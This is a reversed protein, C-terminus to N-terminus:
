QMDSLAEEGSDTSIQKIILDAQELLRACHQALKQGRQYFQLTEALSFGGGELDTVIQELESLAQEFSLTEIDSDSERNNLIKSHMNPRLSPKKSKETM